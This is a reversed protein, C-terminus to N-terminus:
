IVKVGKQKAGTLYDSLLQFSTWCSHVLSKCRGYQPIPWALANKKHQNSHVLLKISKKRVRM